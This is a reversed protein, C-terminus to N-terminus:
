APPLEALARLHQVVARAASAADYGGELLSVVGRAATREALERVAVTARHYDEPEARLTSSEDASLADCGLALVIVEPPFDEAATELVSALASILESGGAHREVAGVVANRPRTRGSGAADEHVIALRVGADEGLLEATGWGGAASLDVVLVREIGRRTRLHRVLLAAHNFIGFEDARDATVAHGPPRTACFAHSLEARAVLDGGTLAAGVSALAAAWSASSLITGNELETPSGRDQAERVVAEVRAIYDPTHALLLDARGAPVAEVERLRPFLTIM